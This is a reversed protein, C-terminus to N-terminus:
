KMLVRAAANRAHDAVGPDRTILAAVIAGDILLGLEHTLGEPDNPRADRALERIKDLVVAKHRLAIARLRDDGKDHEGVANIFPCGFFSEEAFWTKLVDFLNVLKNSADGPIKDVEAIFWDRWTQGERELVAEVLGEKSGFAKYLTTKATGAAAVVADVGTANIGYRCFLDCAALLLRERAGAREGGLPQVTSSAHPFSM